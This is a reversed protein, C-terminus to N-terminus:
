IVFGVDNTAGVVVGSTYFGERKEYIFVDNALPNFYTLPV